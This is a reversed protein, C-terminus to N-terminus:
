HWVGTRVSVVESNYLCYRSIYSVKNASSPKRGTFNTGDFELLDSGNYIEIFFNNDIGLLQRQKTFSLNYFDLVKTKNLRWDGNTLGIRTVNTQNWDVPYGEGILMEGIYIADGSLSGLDDGVTKGNSISALFMTFTLSIIIISIILDTYWIQGKGFIM